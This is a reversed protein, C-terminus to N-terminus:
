YIGYYGGKTRIYCCDCYGEQCLVDPSYPCPEGKHYERETGHRSLIHEAEALAQGPRMDRAHLGQEYAKKLERQYHKKSIWM